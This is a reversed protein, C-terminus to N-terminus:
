SGITLLMLLVFVALGSVLFVLEHWYLAKEKARALPSLCGKAICQETATRLRLEKALSAGSIADEGVFILPVNVILIRYADSLQELLASAGPENVEYYSISLAPYKALLEELVAEMRACDPCDEQYFVVVMPDKTQPFAIQCVAFTVIFAPLLKWLKRLKMQEVIFM